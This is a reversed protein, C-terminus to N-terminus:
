NYGPQTKAPVTLILTEQNDFHEDGGAVPWVASHIAAAVCGRTLFPCAILLLQNKILPDPPLFFGDQWLGEHHILRIIILRLIKRLYYSLCNLQLGPYYPRRQATAQYSRYM